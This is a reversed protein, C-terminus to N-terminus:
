AAYVQLGLQQMQDFDRDRHLLEHGHEICYTGIILDISSRITIGATRLRRYNAAAKRAIDPGVMSVQAFVSLWSAVFRATQESRAGKLLELVVVDGILITEVEELQRLVVVEPHLVNSFHSILVSSDVVIV